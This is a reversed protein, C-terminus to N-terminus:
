VEAKIFHPQQVLEIEKLETEDKWEALPLVQIANSQYTNVYYNLSTACGIATYLTYEPTDPTPYVMGKPYALNYFLRFLNMVGETEDKGKIGFEKLFSARVFRSASSWDGPLSHGNFGQSFPQLTEGNITFPQDPHNSINKYPYLHAKQWPYDPSNTMIGMTHRYIHVGHEDCEVIATEGNADSFIYHLEFLHQFLPDNVITVDNLILKEVDDITQCQALVHTMVFAPQIPLTNDHANSAYRAYQTFYLLGGMLGKENIGDFLVPTSNSIATGVGTMAYTTTQKTEENINNELADGELYYSYHRPIFLGKTGSIWIHFDFNRGWLPERKETDWAISSCGANSAQSAWNIAEELTHIM